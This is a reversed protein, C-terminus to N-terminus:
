FSVYKNAGLSVHKLGYLLAKGGAIQEEREILGFTPVHLQPLGGGDFWAM